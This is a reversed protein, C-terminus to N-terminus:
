KKTRIKKWNHDKRTWKFFDKKEKKKDKLQNSETLGTKWIISINKQMRLDVVMERLENKMETITNKLVTNKKYKRNRKKLNENLKDM